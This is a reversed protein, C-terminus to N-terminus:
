SVPENLWLLGQHVHSMLYACLHTATLLARPDEELILNAAPLIGVQFERFTPVLLSKPISLLVPVTIDWLAFAYPLFSSIWFLHIGFIFDLFSGHIVKLFTESRGILVYANEPLLHKKFFIAGGHGGHQERVPKIYVM